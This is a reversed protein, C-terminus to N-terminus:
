NINKIEDRYKYINETEILYNMMQFCNDYYKRLKYNSLNSYKKDIEGVVGMKTIITKISSFIPSNYNKYKEPDKIIYNYIKNLILRKTKIGNNNINNYSLLLEYIDDPLINYLDEYNIDKKFILVKDDLDYAEYGYQELIIPINHFLISRSTQNFIVNENYHKMSELLLVINLLFELFNIFAEDTIKKNNLNVGIFELYSYVDLYTGRYKWSNFLYMDVFEFFTYNKKDYTLCKSSLVKVIKHYEDKYTTKSNLNFISIRM